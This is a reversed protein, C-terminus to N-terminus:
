ASLLADIEFKKMKLFADVVRPAREPDAMLESLVTPIVQWSVGYADTLWGCQDYHGGQGLQDWYRDIETQDACEIVFSNGPTFDFDHELPSSMANFICDRLRFQAFLLTDPAMGSTEPYPAELLILSNDFIGAYTTMAEKVMAGKANAFLLSPVIKQTSRIDDVDLPWNVGFRDVVWAYRTTWDYSGLPMMVRGGELLAAYLRDIEAEGGCYVFYSVASTPRYNPGGNLLMLRARRLALMQVMPTDQLVEVGGFVTKYFDAAERANQDFWICPYLSTNM